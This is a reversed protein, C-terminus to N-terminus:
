GPKRFVRASPANGKTSRGQVLNPTRSLQQRIQVVWLCSTPNGEIGFNKHLKLGLAEPAPFDEPCSMGVREEAPTRSFSHFNSVPCNLALSGGLRM